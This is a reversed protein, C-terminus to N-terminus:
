YAKSGLLPHSCPRLALRGVLYAAQSLPVDQREGGRELVCCPSDAGVEGGPLYIYEENERDGYIFGALLREEVVKSM